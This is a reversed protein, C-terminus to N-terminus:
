QPSPSTGAIRIQQLRVYSPTTGTSTLLAQIQLWNLNAWPSNFTNSFNGIANDTGILGWTTGYVSRYNLTISEGGVLPTSLKYEVYTNNRPINYTGIPILDTEVIAYSTGSYPATITKDVGYGSAGDYWGAIYGIGVPEIPLQSVTYRPIQTTITPAYGLFTKYSLQNLLSLAKSSLNVSWIGGYGSLLTGANNTVNVSFLLCNRAYDAGGWQYFPAVTNSIHDPIKIWENAQSGNTLYIRGTNGAFIYANTNVTVINSVYAEALLIPYSVVNSTTDWSYAQNKVSGILMGTGLPSICTAINDIPLLNYTTYTYTSGATPNFATAFSTQFIKEINYQDCFYVRGDPGEIANHPCAGISQGILYATSNGTTSNSPNWGYIWTGVHHYPIGNSIGDINSYDIFGDRFIFLYGDWDGIKLSPNTSRWYVMGNGNAGTDPSNGSNSKYNGTFTMSNTTGTKVYDSWVQGNADIMYNYGDPTIETFKPRAVNFTYLVATGTTGIGQLSGGYSNTITMTSTVGINHIVTNVWHVSTGASIGTISSTSVYFAQATELAPMDNDAFNVYSGDGNSTILVASYAPAQTMSQTSFAVSAEGPVTDINVNQLNSIGLYPSPAIGKEFGSIVISNDTSDFSYAM